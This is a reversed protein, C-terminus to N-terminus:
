MSRARLEANSAMFLAQRGATAARLEAMADQPSTTDHLYIGLSTIADDQWLRRYVDCDMLVNGQDNGYERYIGAVVFERWGGATRLSLREGVGLRLRWALPESIVVDGRGFAAWVDQPNGEALPISATSGRALRVAELRVPGVPSEAVVRRSESHDAVSPVKLLSAVVAPDLRQEPRGFGPGPATVYVDARMTRALWERLSERFSEVMVSVGIMAAVALGLAAVAVGTRSLSNAIDGLALRAIPSFRGAVAASHQALWRLTAPTLATVSLLLLFLAVIGALLSRDSRWVILGAATAFVVSAGVLWTSARVARTEVVSRRMGLQPESRAAELAPVAAAALAVG